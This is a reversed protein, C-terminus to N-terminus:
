VLKGAADERNPGKVPHYPHNEAKPRIATELSWKTVKGEFQPKRTEEGRM